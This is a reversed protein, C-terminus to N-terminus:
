SKLGKIIGTYDQQSLFNYFQEISEVTVRAKGSDKSLTHLSNEQLRLDPIFTSLM